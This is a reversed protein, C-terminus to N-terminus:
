IGGTSYRQNLCPAPLGDYSVAAGVAHPCLKATPQAFFLVVLDVGRLQRTLGADRAHSCNPLVHTGQTRDSSRQRTSNDLLNESRGAFVSSRCRNERSLFGQANWDPFKGTQSSRSEMTWTRDPVTLAAIETM